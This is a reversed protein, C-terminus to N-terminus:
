LAIKLFNTQPRRSPTATLGKKERTQTPGYAFGACRRSLTEICCHSLASPWIAREGSLPCFDRVNPSIRGRNSDVRLAALSFVKNDVVGAPVWTAVGKTRPTPPDCLAGWRVPAVPRLHVIARAHRLSHQQQPVFMRKPAFTAHKSRRRHLSIPLPASGGM